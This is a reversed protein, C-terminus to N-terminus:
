YRKKPSKRLAEDNKCLDGTRSSGKSILTDTPSEKHTKKKSKMLFYKEIPSKVM